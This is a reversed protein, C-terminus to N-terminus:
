PPSRTKITTGGSTGTIKSRLKRGKPLAALLHDLPEARHILFGQAFDLGIKRVEALVEPTEVFKAVTQLRYIKAVDRFCCVATRDLPDDVMNQILHGDIKLRDVTLHKLYGFSSAGAGFDDLAIRVGLARIANIFEGVEGLNTVAAMETIEFCLKRPDFPVHSIRDILYHHFSKDGISQGSLNIAITEVGQLPIQGMRDLLEHVVWRDIRSAMHFREAAPLFAAAAIMTNDSKPLRLFVELSLAATPGRCSAIQQGYLQFQNGDLAEELRSVWQTEGLREKIRKDTDLWEHVCNRGAEKAAHCSADAAHMLRAMDIWRSDVPVLGVSAGILFRRGGHVFRFNAMRKCLQGAVRRAQAVTCNEM